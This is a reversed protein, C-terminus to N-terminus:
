RCTFVYGHSRSPYVSRLEARLTLRAPALSDFSIPSRLLGSLPSHSPFGSNLHTAGAPCAIASARLLSPKGDGLANSMM